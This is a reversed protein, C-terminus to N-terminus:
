EFEFTMSCRDILHGVAGCMSGDGPGGIPVRPMVVGCM